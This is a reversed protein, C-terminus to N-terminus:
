KLALHRTIERITATRDGTAVEQVIVAIIEAEELPNLLKKQSQNRVGTQDQTLIAHNRKITIVIPGSKIEQVPPIGTPAIQAGEQAIVSEMIAEKLSMAIKAALVEAGVQGLSSWKLNLYIM